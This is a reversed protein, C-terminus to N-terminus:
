ANNGGTNPQTARIAADIAARPDFFSQEWGCVPEPRFDNEDDSRVMVKCLDVERNWGVWAQHTSMWDLRATDTLPAVAQVRLAQNADTIGCAPCRWQVRGSCEICTLPAVPPHAALDSLDDDASWLDVAVRALTEWTFPQKPELLGEADFVAFHELRDRVRISTKPAEGSAPAVPHRQVPETCEFHFFGGNAAYARADHRIPRSCHLCLPANNM